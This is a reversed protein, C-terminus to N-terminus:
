NWRRKEVGIYTAYLFIVIFSLYYIVHTLSLNGLIFHELRDFLSLWSLLDKILNYPLLSLAADAVWMLLMIGGTLIAAVVQSETLTSIFMGITIMVLGLLLFGIYACLIEGFVSTGFMNIISPFILSVALAILYVTSASFYKALVIEKISVGSTLLLQDTKDKKEQSFLRMTLIPVIIMFIFSLSGLTTSFNSSLGIINTLSFFIAAILIFTGIFIYAIPSLFYGRLERKFIASM